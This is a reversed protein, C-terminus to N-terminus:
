ESPNSQQGHYQRSYDSGSGMGRGRGPGMGHGRGFGPYPSNPCGGYGQTEMKGFGMRGRGMLGRGVDPNIKKLKLIHDLRKRGMQGKLESIEDQIGAAKAADPDKKALESRLELGKQYLQQRIEKTAEFFSQREAQMQKIEDESLNGLFRDYGQNEYEQDHWGPGHHMGGHHGYGMGMQAMAYTGFGALAIVILILISIKFFKEPM